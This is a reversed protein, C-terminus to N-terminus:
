LRRPSGAPPNSAAAGNALPRLNGMGPIQSPQGTGISTGAPAAPASPASPAAPAPTSTAPPTFNQPAPAPAANAPYAPVAPAPAPAAPKQGAAAARINKVIANIDDIVMKKATDHLIQSVQIPDDSTEVESEFEAECRVWSEPAGYNATNISKSYGRKIKKIQM